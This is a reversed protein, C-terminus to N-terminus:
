HGYHAKTEKTRHRFNLSKSTPQFSTDKITLATTQRHSPQNWGLEEIFLQHFDFQNLCQRMRDLNVAM